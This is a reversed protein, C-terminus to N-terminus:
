NKPSGAPWSTLYFYLGFFVAAYAIVLLAKQWLQLGAEGEAKKRKVFDEWPEKLEEENYFDGIYMERMLLQAKPTHNIDEFQSTADM